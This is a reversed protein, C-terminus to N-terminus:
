TLYDPEEAEWDAKNDVLYQRIEEKNFKLIDDRALEEDTFFDVSEELLVRTGDNSFRVAGKNEFGRALYDGRKASFEAIPVIFYISEM